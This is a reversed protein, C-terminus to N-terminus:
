KKYYSWIKLLISAYIIGLLSGAIVDSPYHVGIYVRSIIVLIALSYFWYKYQKYINSFIMSLGSINAAHNSPFSYYKGKESVLHNVMDSEMGAWPRPRMFWKKLFLGSQDILAIAIPILIVLKWRNKNDLIITAFFPILMIPLFYKKEDFIPMILDFLSNSFVNNIIIFCSQDIYILFNIM